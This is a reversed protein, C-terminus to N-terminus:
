GALHQGVVRHERLVAVAVEHLAEHVPRFHVLSRVPLVFATHHRNLPRVLINPQVTRALLRPSQNAHRWDFQQIM